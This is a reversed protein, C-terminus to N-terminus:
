IGFRAYIADAYQLEREPDMVEDLEAETVHSSIRPDSLLNSKMDGERQFIARHAAEQIAYYVTDPDVGKDNLLTKIAESYIAGRTKGLNELMMQPFVELGDLVWNMTQVIYGVMVIVEEGMRESSSQELSRQFWTPIRELVAGHYNRAVGSLGCVQECKEANRKHPMASSGKMGVPFPEAAELIDTIAMLRIQLAIEEYAAAICVLAHFFDANLDRPLIQTSIKAPRLGLVRCVEEEIRPDQTYTGVAGSLKGVSIRERAWQMREIARQVFGCLNLVEIGFYMPKAHVGHTRAVKLTRKHKTALGLLLRESEQMDEVLIDVSLRKRLAEATDTGDFSTSNKHLAGRHEAPMGKRVSDLYANYDHAVGHLIEQYDFSSELIAVAAEQSIDGFQAQVQALVKEFAHIFDFKGVGQESLYIAALRPHAYRDISAGKPATTATPIPVAGM